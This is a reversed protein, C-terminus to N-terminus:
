EGVDASGLRELRPVLERYLSLRGEIQAAVEPTALLRSEAQMRDTAVRQALRLEPLDRHAGDQMRDAVVDLYEGVVADFRRAASVVSEPVDVPGIAPRQHALALQTLFVSQADTAARQLRKRAALREPAATTLLEFAADDAWQQATAFDGAAQARLSGTRAIVETQDDSQSGVTALRAMARLAAGLSKWMADSARVPWVYQFVLTIVVNGLLIGVLRDRITYFYWTPAFGQIVCVFFAFAIQVGAYSIRPSGLVVWAAVATGAAVVLTLSTISEMSPILLMIALFGMAAGVLAGGIRLTGKQVTAGESGLGVILCTIVCTRIGPWNVANQLAYCIMVALTGKLAYRVYEANTFADPVFLHSGGTQASAVEGAVGDPGVAQEMLNVVDELEVLVPLMATGAISQPVAGPSVPEPIPEGSLARRVWACAEVIRELWEREDAGPLTPPLLELAAASTLLRDVLTILATQQAHRAHLSPHVVEASKLLKLLGAVGTTALRAAESEYRSRGLRRDLASEVARVRNTLEERLLAAPDTPAILLNCAVAAAIALAFVPWLWLIFRVAHEPTLVFDPATMGMAAVLGIVFGLAGIVFTRRLFLGLAAMAAILFFRLAPQDMAIPLLILSIALGVTLAILMVVGVLLTQSSEEMALRTVAWVALYTEPVRLTMGLVLVAVCGIVIRLTGVARGPFPALERRLFGILPIRESLPAAPLPTSAIEVAPM